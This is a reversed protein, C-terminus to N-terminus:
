AKADAEEDAKTKRILEPEGSVPEEAVVAAVEEARPAVVTVVPLDEDNLIDAKEVKIDRVYLSMGIGLDTVDLDISGPIDGPFVEIELTRLIHDLVGGFNRVGDATGTLHVPVEVTIKEDAHIEYLDVHTIDAPRVPNRQIERIIVKVPARGDVSVDVVTSAASIGILMKSLAPADVVLAEPERGHGYIVAPVKGDRRIARAAGKGTTSRTAAQLSVQQAM